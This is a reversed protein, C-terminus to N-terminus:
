FFLFRVGARVMSGITNNTFHLVNSIITTNFLLVLVANFSFYLFTTLLAMENAQYVIFHWTLAVAGLTAIAMLSAIIRNKTRRNFNRFMTPFMFSLFVTDEVVGFLGSLLAGLYANDLISFTPYSVFAQQTLLIRVGFIIGFLVAGIVIFKPRIPTKEVTVSDIYSFRGGTLIDAIIFILAFVGFFMYYVTVNIEAQSKLGIWSLFIMLFVVALYLFYYRKAINKSDAKVSKQSLSYDYKFDGDTM